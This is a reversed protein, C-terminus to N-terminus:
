LTCSLVEKFAANLADECAEQVTVVGPGQRQSGCFQDGKYEVFLLYRQVPVAEQVEHDNEDAM